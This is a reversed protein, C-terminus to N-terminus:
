PGSPDQDIEVMDQYRNRITVKSIDAVDSVSKQTVKENTLLAGVYIAAAALGVPNKGSLYSEDTEAVTTLMAHSRQEAEESLGLDSALRPIYDMPDAPEIKLSLERTLYRYARTIPLQEIRSVATVEDLSRPIGTQRAAAYVAATSMGEISRGRLMDEDLARRYIVSATERTPKPLGLASAMREIEGLAQRLNRERPSATQLRTHWTRLRDIRQRQRSSLSNGYADENRWGIEASVGEDHRMKTIPAGVRSRQQRENTTHARWEPGHDIRDGDVVFGCEACASDGHKQDHELRGNCEPCSDFGQEADANKAKNKSGENLEHEVQTTNRM